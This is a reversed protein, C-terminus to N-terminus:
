PRVQRAIAAKLSRRLQAFDREVRHRMVSDLPVDCRGTGTHDRIPQGCRTCLPGPQPTCTNV